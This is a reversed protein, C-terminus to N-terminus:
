EAAPELTSADISYEADLSDAALTEELDSDPTINYKQELQTALNETEELLKMFDEDAMLKQFAETIAEQNVQDQIADLVTTAKENADEIANFDEETEVARLAEIQASYMGKFFNEWQAADWSSGNKQVDEVLAEMKSIGTKEGCAAMLFCMMLACLGMMMKKM